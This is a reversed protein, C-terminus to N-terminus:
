HAEYRSPENLIEDEGSLFRRAWCGGATNEVQVIVGREAAFYRTESVPPPLTLNNGMAKLQFKGRTAGPKRILRVQEVGEVARSPDVYAFNGSAGSGSWAGKAPVEIKDALTVADGQTDFICVAYATDDTPDGIEGGTISLKVRLQDKSNDNARNRLGVGGSRTHGCSRDPEVTAVCGGQERDCRDHTCAVGDDCELNSAAVCTGSADCSGGITCVDHDDCDAGAAATVCDDCCDDAFTNGDDCQESGEVFGDGCAPTRPTVSLALGPPSPLPFPPPFPDNPFAAATVAFGSPDPCPFGSTLAFVCSFLDQPGAIGGPYQAIFASLLGANDDLLEVENVTLSPASAVLVTCALPQTGWSPGLGPASSDGIFDGGAGSYDLGFAVIGGPEAQTLKAVVDCTDAAHVHASTLSFALACLPGVRRM